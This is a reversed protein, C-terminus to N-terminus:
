VTDFLNEFKQQEYHLTEVMHLEWESGRFMKNWRQVPALAFDKASGDKKLGVCEGAMDELLEMFTRNVGNTKPFGPLYWKSAVALEPNSCIDGYILKIQGLLYKQMRQKEQPTQIYYRTAYQVGERPKMEKIREYKFTPM